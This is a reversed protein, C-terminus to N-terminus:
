LSRYLDKLIKKRQQKIEDIIWEMPYGDDLATEINKMTLWLPYKKPSVDVVKGTKQLVLIEGLAEEIDTLSCGASVLKNTCATFREVLSVAGEQM